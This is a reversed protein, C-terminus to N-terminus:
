EFLHSVFEKIFENLIPKLDNIWASGDLKNNAIKEKSEILM